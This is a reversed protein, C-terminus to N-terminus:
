LYQVKIAETIYRLAHPFIQWYSKMILTQIYLVLLTIQRLVDYKIM